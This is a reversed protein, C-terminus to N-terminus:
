ACRARIGRRHPDRRRAPRACAHPSTATSTASWSSASTTPAPWSAASTPRGSRARPAHGARAAPDACLLGGSRLAWSAQSLAEDVDDADCGSPHLRTIVDLAAPTSTSSRSRPRAGRDARARGARLRHRAGVAVLPSRSGSEDVIVASRRGDDRVRVIAALAGLAAWAAVPRGCRPLGLARACDRAEDADAGDTLVDTARIWDPLDARTLTLAPRRAAVGPAAAGARRDPLSPRVAPRGGTAAPRRETPGRSPVTPAPARAVALAELAGVYHAWPSSLDPTHM